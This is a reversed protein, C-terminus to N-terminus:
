SKVVGLDMREHGLVELALEVWRLDQPGDYVRQQWNFKQCLPIKMYM